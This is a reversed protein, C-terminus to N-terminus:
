NPDWVYTVLRDLDSAVAILWRRFRWNIRLINCTGMRTFGIFGPNRSISTAAIANSANAPMAAPATARIPGPVGTAGAGEPGGGRKAGLSSGVDVALGLAEISGRTSPASM